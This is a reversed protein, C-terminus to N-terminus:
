ARRCFRIRRAGGVLQLLSVPTTGCGSLGPWSCLGRGATPGLGIVDDHSQQSRSPSQLIRQWLSDRQASRLPHLLPHATMSFTRLTTPLSQAPTAADSSPGSAYSVLFFFQMRVQSPPEGDEKSSKNNFIVFFCFRICLQRTEIFKM